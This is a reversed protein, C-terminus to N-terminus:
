SVLDAYEESTCVSVVFVCVCENKIRILLKYVIVASVTHVHQLLFDVPTQCCNRCYAIETPHSSTHSHTEIAHTKHIHQM